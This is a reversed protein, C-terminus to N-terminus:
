FRTGNQWHQYLAIDGHVARPERRRNLILLLETVPAVVIAKAAKGGDRWTISGPSLTVLWSDHTDTATFLLTEDNGRVKALYSMTDLFDAVGDAALDPALDGDPEADFRHVILDHLMRRQWFGATQYKPQWTWVRNGFGLDDVAANLRRVGAALWDAWDHPDAPADVLRYEAMSTRRDEIIGAALRHGTGVHTILDRVTWEPCSPVTEDPSRNTVAAALRDAEAELEAAYRADPLWGM